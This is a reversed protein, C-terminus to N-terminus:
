RQHRLADVINMRSAKIAPVVSALVATVVALLFANLAMGADVLIEADFGEEMGPPPPMPIGIWSLLYSLGWGLSAGILGGVIGLVLGECLFLRLIGSRRVGLAMATGIEGTRETVAMQLTNGISIVIILGILVEVVFIQKLFLDRTKLYYDALDQWPVFEFAKADSKARLDAIVPETLPTDKLLVVWSTAGEVRILERALSIPVRLAGDDYEKSYTSFLGRVHVDSGWFGGKATTTTLVMADGVKVGLNAALGRGLMIGTPDDASLPRGAAVAIDSSVLAENPPDVGEGVFTVTADGFSALGSFSLRPALAEVEPRHRIAQETDGGEPLLYHYPDAIGSKFYNPRVVQIHGVQSRITSERMNELLWHIFGGALVFCLVGGCIILLSFLARRRHRVVNRFAMNLDRLISSFLPPM